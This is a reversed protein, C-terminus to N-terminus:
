KETCFGRLTDEVGRAKAYDILALRAANCHEASTFEQTSVAAGQVAGGLWSIIILVHTVVDEKSLAAVPPIDAFASWEFHYGAKICSVM